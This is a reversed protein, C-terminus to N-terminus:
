ESLVEVYGKGNCKFCHRAFGEEWWRNLIYYFGLGGCEPCTKNRIKKLRSQM